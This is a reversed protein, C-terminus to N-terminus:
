SVPKNFYEYTGALVATIYTVACDPEHDLRYETADEDGLPQGTKDVPYEQSGCWRCSGYGDLERELIDQLGARLREIEAELKANEISLERSIRDRTEGIQNLRKLTESTETLFSDLAEYEALPVYEGSQDGSTDCSYATTAIPECIFTEQTFKVVTAM